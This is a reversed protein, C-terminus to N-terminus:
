GCVRKLKRRKFDIEGVKRSSGQLFDLCWVLRCPKEFLSEHYFEIMIWYWGHHMFDYMLIIVKQEHAALNECFILQMFVPVIILPQPILSLSSPPM